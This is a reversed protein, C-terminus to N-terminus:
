RGNMFRKVARQSVWPFFVSLFFFVLVFWKQQDVLYTKPRCCRRGGRAISQWRMLDDGSKLWQGHGGFSMGVWAWAKSEFCCGGSLTIGMISTNLALVCTASSASLLHREPDKARM